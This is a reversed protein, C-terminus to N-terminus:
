RRCTVNRVATPTSRLTSIDGLIYLSTMVRRLPEEYMHTSAERGRRSASWPRAASVQLVLNDRECASEWDTLIESKSSSMLLVMSCVLSM